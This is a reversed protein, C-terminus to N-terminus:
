AKLSRSLVVDRPTNLLPSRLILNPDPCLELYRDRQSEAAVGPYDGVKGQMDLIIQFHLHPPWDGNVPPAGLTGLEQGQQMITGPEKGRLSERSLHGYLTHFTVGELEHTLIITPGYDGFLANDQASHVISPYPAYVPEGAPAWIDVGLHISRVEAGNSFQEGRAYWGRKENYGGIGYTAGSQILVAELLDCIDSNDRCDTSAVLPNNLSLDLAATTPAELAVKVIRAPSSREIAAVVQDRRAQHSLSSSM